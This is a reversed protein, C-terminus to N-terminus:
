GICVVDWQEREPVWQEWSVAGSVTDWCFEATSIEAQPVM